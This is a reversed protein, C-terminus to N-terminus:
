LNKFAANFINEWSYERGLATANTKLERYFAGDTLLKKIAEILGIESEAVVLGARRDRIVQAIPSINTMIVPLSAGLYTKIKGPDTFQKFSDREIVYPAIGFYCTALIQDVEQNEKIFGKFEIQSVLGLAAVKATLSERLPGSGIIVLRTEPVATAVQPWLNILREIGQEPSLIGLFVVKKILLEMPPFGSSVVPHCGVPVVLQKKLSKTPFGKDLREKIMAEALNWTWDANKACYMEISCYIYNLLRNQFREPVYDIVYYVVKKVRGLKRLVIGALANLNDVGFFLEVKPARFIFYYLTFFFDRVFFLVEPGAVQRRLCARWGIVTKKLEGNQYLKVTSNSLVGDRATKFPHTLYYISATKDKLYNLLEEEVLGTPTYSHHVIAVQSFRPKM